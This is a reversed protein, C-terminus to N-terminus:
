VTLVGTVRGKHFMLWYQVSMQSKSDEDMKKELTLSVNITIGQCSKLSLNGLNKKKKVKNDRKNIYLQYVNNNWDRSYLLPFWNFM